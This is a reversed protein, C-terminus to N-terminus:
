GAAKHEQMDQKQYYFLLIGVNLYACLSTSLAVSAPGWRFGVIFLSNLILNSGMSILSAKMPVTYNKKAYFAPAMVLVCASPLLGLAYGWLCLTTKAVALDGFDGREYVLRIIPTGLFLLILTAPLAWLLNRKLSHTLLHRYQQLNNQQVARSLPPMVASSIAIGFLALPLQQIRIAYWLLAPGELDAYRAFLPDVASNIQTAIVGVLSLAFPAYFSVISRPNIKFHLKPLHPALIKYTQPITACWQAFCAINIAIALTTVSSSGLVAAIWIINFFLPALSSIFYHRECQLLATNLGYLCIFLLSPMMVMTLKVVQQTEPSVYTHLLALGGVVMVILLILLAIINLALNCFFQMGKRSHKQRIEEFQPIFATQLAGEGFIRRALHSLRFALMFAAIAPSVGFTAATIVDRLFGTCRSLFTGSFFKRASQNLTHTNDMISVLKDSKPFNHFWLMNSKRDSTMM